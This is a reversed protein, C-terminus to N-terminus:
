MRNLLTEIADFANQENIGQAKKIIARGTGQAVPRASLGEIGRAFSEGLESKFSTKTQPGFVKDIETAFISLIKPDSKGKWGYKRATSDILDIANDLTVRSQANGMLRRLLTGIASNGGAETLKMKKGAVDQLADLAKKTESFTTNVKNYKPFTNDLSQDIDRRLGKIIIETKGSLGGKPTKGFSVQEDIFKKMRHMQYADPSGKNEIRKLMKRIIQQPGVLGEIDSGTFVAKGDEIKIGMDDLKQMFNSVAEGFDAQKGKLTKAVRDLLKGANINVSKVHKVPELLVDGPVDSPRNNVGYRANKKRKRTIDVMKMM